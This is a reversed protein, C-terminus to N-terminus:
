PGRSWWPSKLKDGFGDGEDKRSLGGEMKELQSDIRIKMRELHADFKALMEEKLLEQGARMERLNTGM